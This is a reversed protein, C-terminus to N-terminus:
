GGGLFYYCKRGKIELVLKQPEIKKLLYGGPLVAGEFYKKGDALIIYSVGGIHVAKIEINVKVTREVREGQKIKVRKIVKFQPAYQKEIRAIVKEFERKKEALISGTILISSPQVRVQLDPMNNEAFFNKIQRQVEALCLLRNEIHRFGPIDERLLTLMKKLSTKDLVFGTLLLKGDAFVKLKVNELGMANVVEQAALLLEENAYIKTEIQPDILKLKRALKQKDQRTEVYGTVKIKGQKDKFVRIYSFGSKQVFDEVLKFKDILPLSSPPQKPTSFFTFVFSGLVIALIAGIIVYKVPLKKKTEQPTKEISEAQKEESLTEEENKEEKEIIPLNIDPWKENTPGLALCVNGLTVVQFLNLVSTTAIRKGDIFVEGELPSITITDATIQLCCHKFAVEEDELILDCDEGKGIVYKGPVLVLEAGTHLGKLIRLLLEQTRKGKDENM